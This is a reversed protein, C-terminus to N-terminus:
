GAKTTPTGSPPASPDRSPAAASSVPARSPDSVPGTALSVMETKATANRGTLDQLRDPNVIGATMVLKAADEGSMTLPIVASRPVICVFGTPPMFGTPMWVMIHDEDGGPAVAAIEGTAPGTIYVLSWIGKSPFEMLGVKVMQRQPQAAAAVSEFMQKLGRYLNRVIPMREVFLEGSTILTRGLLNAALAGILTLAVASFILGFGPVAFPLYTDPDYSKPVLPKVWHDVYSIFWWVLYLTIAVPGVVVIGTLFYNRLRAGLAWRRASASAEEQAEAAQQLAREAPSLDESKM